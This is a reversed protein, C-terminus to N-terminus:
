AKETDPLAACYRDLARENRLVVTKEAYQRVISRYDARKQKTRGGFLVWRVFEADLKENCGPALDPRTGGRYRRYRKTVRYLCVWRSFNLFVVQDARELREPQLLGTYNGDIIWDPRDLMQRVDALAAQRDRTKWNGEFFIGDLHQVPVGYAKGLKEALTSKGSGSYGIIAIRM